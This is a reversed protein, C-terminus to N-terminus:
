CLLRLAKKNQQFCFTMLLHQNKHINGQQTLRSNGIQTLRKRQFTDRNKPNDFSTARITFGGM